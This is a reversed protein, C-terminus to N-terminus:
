DCKTFNSSMCERAMRQAQEVQQSSMNRAAIDRNRTSNSDGGAAAINFWLHARVYDQPVGKAEYYMVGLNSQASYHNQKAASQYWRVAEKYDQIVGRGKQYMVGLNFQAEAYGQQAAGQYWHVAEKYDQAVGQGEYYMVGLGYQVGFLGQQAASRWKTLATAYDQRQVADWGDEFDGAQVTTFFLSFLAATVFRVISENTSLETITSFGSLFAVPKLGATRGGTNGDISGGSANDPETKL